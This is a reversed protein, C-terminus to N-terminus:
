IFCAIQKLWDCNSTAFDFSFRVVLRFARYFLLLIYKFEFVFHTFMNLLEPLSNRECICLFIRSCIKRLCFFFNGLGSLLNRRCVTQLLLFIYVFHFMFFNNVNKKCTCSILKYKMFTPLIPFHLHTFLKECKFLKVLWGLSNRNCLHIFM